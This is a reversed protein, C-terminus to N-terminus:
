LRWHGHCHGSPDTGSLDSETVTVALRRPESPSLSRARGDGDGTVSHGDRDARPGESRAGASGAPRALRVRDSDTVQKLSHGIALLFFSAM